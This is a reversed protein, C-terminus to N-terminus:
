LTEKETISNINFVFQGHAFKFLGYSGEKKILKGKKNNITITM